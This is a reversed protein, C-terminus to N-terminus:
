EISKRNLLIKVIDHRPMKHGREAELISLGLRLAENVVEENNRALLRALKRIRFLIPVPLNRTTWTVRDLEPDQTRRM